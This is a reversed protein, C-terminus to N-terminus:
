LSSHRIETEVDRNGIWHTDDSEVYQEMVLYFQMQRMPIVISVTNSGNDYNKWKKRGSAQVQRYCFIKLSESCKCVCTIWIITVDTSFSLIQLRILLLFRHFWFFLFFNLLLVQKLLIVGIDTGTMQIKKNIRFVHLYPSTTHNFTKSKGYQGATMRWGAQIEGINAPFNFNLLFFIWFRRITCNKSSTFEEYEQITMRIYLCTTPILFMDYGNSAYQSSYEFFLEM